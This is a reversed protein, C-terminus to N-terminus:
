VTSFNHLRLPNQNETNGGGTFACEGKVQCSFQAGFDEADIRHFDIPPHVDSGGLGGGFHLAADSVVENVDDLRGLTEADASVEFQCVGSDVVYFGAAYGDNGDTSGRHVYLGQEVAKEFSGAVVRVQSSIQFFSDGGFAGGSEVCLKGSDVGFGCLSYVGVVGLSDDACELNVVEGSFGDRVELLVVPCGGVLAGPFEDSDAALFGVCVVAYIRADFFHHLLAEQLFYLRQEGLLLRQAVLGGLGDAVGLYDPM